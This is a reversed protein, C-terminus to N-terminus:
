NLLILSSNITEDQKDQDGQYDQFSFSNSNNLTADM